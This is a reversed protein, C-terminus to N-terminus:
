INGGQFLLNMARNFGFFQFHGTALGLLYILTAVVLVTLYFAMSHRFVAVRSKETSTGKNGRNTWAQKPLRFWIYAKIAANLIQSFYLIFPFGISFRHAYLGIVLSAALRTFLLWVLYVILASPSVFIMAYLTLIPGILVTWISLRQDVLCWWIFLGVRRPGLAIARSGNRLMNGSWRILNSKMRDIGNGEIIEVTTSMADPVYTMQAGNRLLDYWTSKDDGSLFGFNGWLWNNLSDAEIIEIFERKLVERARIVSMRGTLTIVKRSLAHSMMGLHRQGFRMDLWTQIWGPGWVIAQENTTLASIEPMTEFFPVCRVLCDKELISDGDMFVVPSDPHLGHRSMARLVTGIAGRKGKGLQRVYIVELNVGGQLNQFFEDIVDEDFPDGTGIYLRGHVGIARTEDVISQVVARTIDKDEKYTTMMYVVEPPRWGTAWLQDAKRRMAPFRIFRYILSRVLHVSWWGWRWLGIIGLGIILTQTESDWINNPIRTLLFYMGALYLYLHLATKWKM